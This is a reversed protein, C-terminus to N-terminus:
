LIHDFETPVKADAFVSTGDTPKEHLVHDCLNMGAYFPPM